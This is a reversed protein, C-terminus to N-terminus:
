LKRVKEILWDLRTAPRNRAVRLLEIVKERSVMEPQRTDPGAEQAFDSWEEQSM